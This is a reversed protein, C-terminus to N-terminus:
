EIEIRRTSAAAQAQKKPIEITLVGNEVRATIKEKMVNDPLILRQQFRSYSFERRLYTGQRKRDTEKGASQQSEAETRRTNEADTESKTPQTRESSRSTDPQTRDSATRQAHKTEEGQPQKREEHRENKKEMTVILENDENIDVKFDEKTMGPAAVEVQFETETEVINVAPATVNSKDVWENGFFDNFISPLWNQNKRVPMM